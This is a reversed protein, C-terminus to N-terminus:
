RRRRRPGRRRSATGQIPPQPPPEKTWAVLVAQGKEYQPTVRTFGRARAFGAIDGQHEDMHASFSTWLARADEDFLAAGDVRAALRPRDTV